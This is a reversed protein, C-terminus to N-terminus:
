MQQAMSAVVCLFTGPCTMALQSAKSLWNQPRGHVLCATPMSAAPMSRSSSRLAPAFYRRWMLRSEARRRALGSAPSLSRAKWSEPPGFGSGPDGNSPSAALLAARM